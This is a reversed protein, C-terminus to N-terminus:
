PTETNTCAVRAAADSPVVGFRATKRRARITECWRRESDLDERASAREGATPRSALAWDLNEASAPLTQFYNTRDYATTGNWRAGRRTFEPKVDPFRPSGKFLMHELLHAMGKEGYGEHRSGVLYTIHVTVTDVTADPVLLM